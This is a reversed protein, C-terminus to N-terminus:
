VPEGEPCYIAGRLLRQDLDVLASVYRQQEAIYAFMLAYRLLKADRAFFWRSMELTHVVRLHDKLTRLDEQWRVYLTPLDKPIVICSTKEWLARRDELEMEAEHVSTYTEVYSELAVVYRWATFSQPIGSMLILVAALLIACIRISWEQLM